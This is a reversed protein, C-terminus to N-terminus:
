KECAGLVGQCYDSLYGHIENPHPKVYNYVPLILVIKPITKKVSSSSLLDQIEQNPATNIHLSSNKLCTGYGRKSLLLGEMELKKIAKHM